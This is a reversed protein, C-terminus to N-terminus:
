REGDGLFFGIAHAINTQIRVFIRVAPLDDIEM